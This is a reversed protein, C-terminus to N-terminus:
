KGELENIRNELEMIKKNAEQLAAVIVPTIRGYDMSMMEDSDPDGSVAEPVIDMMEQAIFGHVADAEPDAKWGHTVPNMAMLKDTGDTITEINDKLRRDSTTAYTTGTTSSQISGVDANSHRVRFHLGNSSGGSEINWDNSKDLVIRGTDISVSNTGGASAGFRVTNASADLFLMHTNSDSEVRFDLNAGNENFVVESMGFTQYHFVTNTNDIDRTIDWASHNWGSQGNTIRRSRFTLYDSNHSKAKMGFIKVTDNLATGLSVANGAVVGHTAVSGERVGGLDVHNTGGDVYLAHTNGSSEVRFDVDAGIENFITSASSMELREINNTHFRLSGDISNWMNLDTNNSYIYQKGSGNTQFAIQGGTSGNISLTYFGSSNTLTSTGIGVNDTGGDVVLMNANGSSEVRFDADVGNENFVVNQGALPYTTLDGGVGLTMRTQSSTQFNMNASSSNSTINFDSGDFSINANGSSATPFNIYSNNGTKIGSNFTATGAESMDLTLATIGVGGDVGEIKIDADSRASYIQVDSGTNRIKFFETGADKFFVSGGDADLIIDGAADLTMDGSSLALTTGDLTFNDVTIGGDADLVGNNISVGSSNVLLKRSGGVVIGFNDDAPFYIGTNADGANTISPASTSGDIVTVSDFTPTSTPVFNTGNYALVDNTSVGGTNVDTMDTLSQNSLVFTGYTVVELIDGTAAGSALQISTGSSATFDVGNVLRIGSLFVDLFGADYGLSNTNDDAGSFTTQNNTATYKYRESTGNVASGASQWGSSGYVKM